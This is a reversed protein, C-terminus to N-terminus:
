PPPAAAVDVNLGLATVPGPCSLLNIIEDIKLTQNVPKLDM